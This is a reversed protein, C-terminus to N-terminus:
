EHNLERLQSESFACAAPPRLRVGLRALNWLAEYLCPDLKLAREFDARAAVSQGLAVLAAGRNNYAAASQPELALARGFEALAEAPRGMALLRKGKESAVRPDDPAITKARELLEFAQRDDSVRALQLLPRVKGPAREVAEAWLRRETQWVEVRLATLAVLALGAIALLRGNVNRAWLGIAPALSVLPLYMRRDAALDSAPFVSSSPLLLVLAGLTWFGVDLRWFRRAALLCAALIALWGGAALWLPPQHIEPDVTFGYPIALLRFYRWIVVGQAALYELPTTNAGAGAGSGPVGAAVLMVRIGAALALAGMVALAKAHRIRGSSSLELLALFLPFAACEEKALLAASFWAAAAWPRGALWWRWAALCLLAALLTGRQYVYVVPETQIPHIAFVAAAVLAIRQGLLRGLIAFLLLVAGLHIGLNVAHWAAPNAGGLSHNLWFTFYALPRTQELQWLRRWGDPATVAPAVLLSHDDFHFGATLCRGFALVVAAALAVRAFRSEPSAIISPNM